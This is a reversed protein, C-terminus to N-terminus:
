KTGAVRGMGTSMSCLALRHFLPTWNAHVCMSSCSFKSVTPRGNFVALHLNRHEIEGAAAGPALWCIHGCLFAKTKDFPMITSATPM